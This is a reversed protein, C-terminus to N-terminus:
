GAVAVYLAALRREVGACISEALAIPFDRPMANRARELAGPAADRLEQFLSPVLDVSLGSRAATQEFHRPQIADVQYHRNSGVFM